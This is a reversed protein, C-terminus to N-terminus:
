NGYKIRGQYYSCIAHKTYCCISFYTEAIILTMFLNRKKPARPNILYFDSCYHNGCPHVLLVKGKWCYIAITHGDSYGGFQTKNGRPPLVKRASAARGACGLTQQALSSCGQTGGRAECRECINGHRPLLQLLTQCLGASSCSCLEGAM